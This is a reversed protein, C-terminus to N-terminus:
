MCIDRFLQLSCTSLSRHLHHNININPNGVNAFVDPSTLITICGLAELCTCIPTNCFGIASDLLYCFYMLNLPYLAQPWNNQWFKTCTKGCDRRLRALPESFGRWFRVSAVGFDCFFRRRPTRGIIKVCFWASKCTKRWWPKQLRDM